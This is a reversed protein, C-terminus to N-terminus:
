RVKMIVPITSDDFIKKETAILEGFVLVGYIFPFYSQIEVISAALIAILAIGNLMAAPIRNRTHLYHIAVIFGMCYLALGVLGSEHAVSLWLSHFAKVEENVIVFEIGGCGFLPHNLIDAIAAAWIDTRGTFTADKGLISLWDGIYASPGVLIIFIGLVAVILTAFRIGFEKRMCVWAFLFSYVALELLGTAVWQATISIIAAGITILTRLSVTGRGRVSDYLTSFCIAPILVYPFGTRIGFLWVAGNLTSVFGKPYVFLMLLNFLSAACFVGSLSNLFAIGASKVGLLVFLTFGLGEYLYYLSPSTFGSLTPALICSWAFYVILCAAYKSRYGAMFFLGIFFFTEVVLMSNSITSLPGLYDYFSSKFFPIMLITVLAKSSLVSSSFQRTRNKVLQGVQRNRREMQLGNVFEM